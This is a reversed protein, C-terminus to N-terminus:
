VLPGVQPFKRLSEVFLQRIEQMSTETEGEFRLSLAAETNSARLVGWGHKFQVRIGDIEVIEGKGALLDRVKDVIELKDKDPCTPRYEATIHRQPMQQNLSSLSTNGAALLQLLKGAVFFGDDIGYYDEAIFIHGSMEGALLAHT